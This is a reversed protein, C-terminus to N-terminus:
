GPEVPHRLSQWVAAAAAVASRRRGEDGALFASRRVVETGSQTAIAVDVRMNGRKEEARVAVGIDAAHEQRANEALDVLEGAARVLEAHVVFNGGGLLAALHGSTGIEVIALTRRALREEIVEAWTRDGEAFVYQGIRQRLKAITADVLESASSRGDREASVVVDVADARAYTAVQANAARLLDEGILAVLASEGIGTLRLTQTAREVGLRGAQLRPLAHERWMPWMERPPGPLAIILRGDSREVWWGPATGHGNPLPEAGDILWAQKRNAEPMSMGRRAFLQELRALLDADVRPELGCAAAIAERTLDDPTPGLGGTSVILDATAMAQEFAGRVAGLDDPLATIRLVRVGFGTLERVLDGSNTDRTAGTTLETGVALIEAVVIPRLVDFASHVVTWPTM